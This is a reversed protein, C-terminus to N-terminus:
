LPETCSPDFYDLLSTFNDWLYGLVRNVVTSTVIENQGIIMKDKGYKPARYGKCITNDYLLTSRFIEINDWMRQFSKTYVWNQIYEEKHILVDNLTWYNSPIIGKLRRISMIDPYKLIKDDTTILLNRFEDHYLGTINNVNLKNSLINGYFVGNRFYKIVQTDLALYIVERNYSSNIKRPNATTFTKFEYSFLYQGTYTYVRINNSTLIHVNRQSDIAVSLPEAAKLADDQITQLWTGTSSYQKVCNNGTDTIWVNDLQDVHIDNPSSFATRSAATGFGGWEVFLKFSDGPTDQRYNFACVRSLIGDLVYIKGTSDLCINKIDSFGVVGDVTDEYDFFTAAQNSDFLKIQTKQATYLINNKSVVGNYICRLQVNSNAIPDYYTDLGPINVHWEGEDCVTIFQTEAPEYYWRKQFDKTLKTQKWTVPTLSNGKKRAWWSWALDYLGYCTPNIRSATCNYTKWTGCGQLVFRGSQDLPDEASLVDRWTVTYPLTTNFCDLDNWTWITCATIPGTTTPPVGLYGFYDSFTGPYLRGRSELYNLNDFLKAFWNNINDETVWDNAGVAPKQPWPLAIPELTSRYETPFVQDYETLVQVINPLETVIPTTDYNTIMSVRLTKSGVIDYSATFSKSVDTGTLTISKNDDLDIIVTNLLNTNTFLNEFRVEAGTLVYRNPTYIKAQPPAISLGSFSQNFNTLKPRWDNTYGANRADQSFQASILSRTTQQANITVRTNEFRSCTYSFTDTDDPILSNPLNEQGGYEFLSLNFNYFNASTPTVDSHMHYFSRVNVGPDSSITWFMNLASYEAVATNYASLNGTDALTWQKPFQGSSMVTYWSSPKGSFSQPSTSCGTYSTWNWILGYRGFCASLADPAVLNNALRAQYSIQSGNFPLYIIPPIGPDFIYQLSEYPKIQISEKLPNRPAIESGDSNVTSIYYPYPEAMGTIDDYFYFPDTSLFLSNTLHLSVPIRVDMGTLSTLVVSTTSLQPTGFSVTSLPYRTTSNALRWVTRTARTDFIIASLVITETHGEGYFWMGQSGTATQPTLVDFIKGTTFYGRPYGIFDGSLFYPVFVASLSRQLIHPTYWGSLSDYPASISCLTAQVSSLRVNPTRIFGSLATLDTLRTTSNNISYWANYDNASLASLLNYSTSDLNIFYPARTPSATLPNTSTLRYFYSSSDTREFNIYLTLDLNPFTDFTLNYTATVPPNTTINVCSISLTCLSYATTRYDYTTSSFSFIATRCTVASIASGAVFPIFNNTTATAFGPFYWILQNNDPVGVAQATLSRIFPENNYNLQTISSPM